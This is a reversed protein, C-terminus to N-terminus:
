RRFWLSPEIDDPIPFSRIIKHDRIKRALAARLAEFHQPDEFIGRAGQADLLALTLESSVQGTQEVESEARQWLSLGAASLVFQRRSKDM